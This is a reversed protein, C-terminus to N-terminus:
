KALSKNACSLCIKGMLSCYYLYKKTADLAIGDSHVPHTREYGEITMKSVETLTSFHNGLIMRIENSRFHLIVIGGVDSDTLYVVQKENDIRLDFKKYLLINIKM